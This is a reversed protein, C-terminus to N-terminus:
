TRIRLPRSTKRWLLLLRDVSASERVVLTSAMRRFKLSGNFQGFDGRSWYDM